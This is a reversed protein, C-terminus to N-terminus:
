LRLRRRLFSGAAAFAAARGDARWTDVFQWMRDSNSSMPKLVKKNMKKKLPSRAFDVQYDLLRVIGTLDTVPRSKQYERSLLEAVKRASHTELFYDRSARSLRQRLDPSVILDRLREKITVPDANVIPLIDKQTQWLDDRIYAIVPKGLAMGEVALVGYWGIRLQDVIIDADRYIQVAEAHSVNEVLRLEFHLGEAKLDSVAQLLAETGKVGRRSPAHVIVPSARASVGVFPWEGADLARPVVTSGPAYTQLEPDTVFIGDCAAFIFDRLRLKSEDPMKRFLWGSGDDVYHFPNKEAFENALRIEQGRYHFFVKKGHMKLLLIDLATPFQLAPWHAILSRAHLHFVDFSNILPVMQQYVSTLTAAKSLDLFHDFKYGFKHDAISCTEAHVGIERLGKALAHPQGAQGTVGQLVRLKESM